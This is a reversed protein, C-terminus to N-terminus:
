IGLSLNAGLISTDLTPAWLLGQVYIGVSFLASNMAPTYAGSLQWFDPVSRRLNFFGDTTPSRHEMDIHTSTAVSFDPNLQYGLFHGVSAYFTQRDVTGAALPGHYVSPNLYYRFGLKWPSPMKKWTWVQSFVLNTLKNNSKSANSLPISFSASTFISWDNLNFASPLNLFVYPDYQEFSARYERGQPNVLTEVNHVADEGLGFQVSPSVQYGLRLSHYLQTSAHDTLYINYTGPGGALYPGMYSVSYSPHLNRFFDRASFSHLGQERKTTDLQAQGFCVGGSFLMALFGMARIQFRM